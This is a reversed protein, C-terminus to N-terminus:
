NARLGFFRRISSMMRNPKNPQLSAEIDTQTGELMARREEVHSSIEEILTPNNEFIPRLAKKNIQLVETEDVASVDASRPEGTLLSMEGFYDDERLTNIVETRGRVPVSINVSGRVIVFMSNGENGKRVITEGPAYVRSRTASALRQIEEDSLPAFLPVRALRESHASIREERTREPQKREVHLTRTPFAFDVKERHLIYWVLERVLADTDNYKAYDNLWYKIEWEIGNDGLNRIRVIPKFRQSVNEAYRIGERVAHAVDAPSSSYLTSFTVIRANANNRPAVEIIEKALISNSVVLLKNQFTRVRVGRWTVSEVVGYRNQFSIVDGIQFPQDAQTAIGAFLNGLTDQLALGVLIGIITSGTLLPALSVEPFHYQFILFFAIIYATVSLVTKILSSVDPQASRDLAAKLLLFSIFRVVAIVIAMKLMVHVLRIGLDIADVSIMQTSLVIKLFDSGYNLLAILLAVIAIFVAVSIAKRLVISSPM